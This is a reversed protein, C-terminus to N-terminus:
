TWAVEVLVCQGSSWHWFFFAILSMVSTATVFGGLM